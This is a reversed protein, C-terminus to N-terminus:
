LSLNDDDEEEDEDPDDPEEDQGYIDGTPDNLPSDPGDPDHLINPDPEPDHHSGFGFLSKMASVFSERDFHDQGLTQTNGLVQKYKASYAEYSIENGNDDHGISNLHGESYHAAAAMPMPYIEDPQLPLSNADVYQEFAFNSPIMRGNIEDYQLPAPTTTTVMFCNSDEWADMFENLSYEIRLDGAGPDTLIITVDEPDNPNVDVGAVVLAHNPTDGEFIDRFFEKTQKFISGERDAWLENADVGVIIRHGQALENVLDYVTCDIDQRVGIGCAELLCGIYQMPTGGGDSPDYWGQETAFHKLEDQSVDIGYDRLIIQQSRIACTGENGQFILPDFTTESGNGRDGFIKHAASAGLNSHSVGDNGNNLLDEMNFIQKFTEIEEIESESLDNALLDEITESSYDPTTNVEDALAALDSNNALIQEVQLEEEISLNGELYAGLMEESSGFSDFILSTNDIM